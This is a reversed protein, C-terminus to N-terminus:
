PDQDGRAQGGKCVPRGPGRRGVLGARALAPRAAAAHQQAPLSGRAAAAPRSGRLRLHLRAHGRLSAACPGGTAHRDGPCHLRILGRRPPVVFRALELWRGQAPARSLTLLHPPPHPLIHGALLFPQITRACTSSQCLRAPHTVAAVAAVPPTLAPAASSAGAVPLAGAAGKAHSPLRRVGGGGGGRVGAPEAPRVPCVALCPPPGPSVLHSLCSRASACARAAAAARCQLM